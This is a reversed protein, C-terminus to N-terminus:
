ILKLVKKWYVVGVIEFDGTGGAICLPTCRCISKSIDVGKNILYNITNIDKTEL